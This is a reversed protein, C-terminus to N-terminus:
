VLEVEISVSAGQGTIADILVIMNEASNVNFEFVQNFSQGPSGSQLLVTQAQGNYWTNENGNQFFPVIVLSPILRLDGSLNFKIHAYAKMKGICSIATIGAPIYANNYAFNVSTSAQYTGAVQVNVVGASGGEGVTAVATIACGTARQEETIRAVWLPATTSTSLLIDYYEAGTAQPITIDVSKNVTPTVTVLASVGASGYSNGPVVGIGHAVATLSGATAPQDAATITIVPVKDATTVNTRHAVVSGRNGTIKMSGPSADTFIETGSANKNVVSSGISGSFPEAKGVITISTGSTWTVVARIKNLGKCNIEFLGTNTTSLVNIGLNRDYASVVGFNTGNVSGFFTVTAVFTGTIQLTTVGYGDVTFDTGNGTASVANQLTATTSIGKTLETRLSNTGGSLIDTLLINEPL